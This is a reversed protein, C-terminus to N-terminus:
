ARRHVHKIEPRTVAAARWAMACRKPHLTVPYLRPGPCFASFMSRHLSSPMSWRTSACTPFM